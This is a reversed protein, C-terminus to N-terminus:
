KGGKGIDGLRGKIITDLGKLGANTWGQWIDHWLKREQERTLNIGAKKVEVDFKANLLEYAVKMKTDNETEQAIRREVDLVAQKNDLQKLFNTDVAREKNTGQLADYLFQGEQVAKSYRNSAEVRDADAGYMEKTKNDIEKTRVDEELNRRQAKMLKLQEATQAAALATGLEMPQPAPAQGGSASGGSQSGATTGGGGSMGYLLGPNLGAEKLMEMQAPYNTKKWMDYQLDAGQQNLRQQNKMQWDMLTKQNEVARKERKRQGLMSILGTAAGIGAGIVSGTGASIGKKPNM